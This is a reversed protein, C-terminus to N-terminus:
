THIKPGRKGEKGHAVAKLTQSNPLRIMGYETLLNPYLGSDEPIVSERLSDKCSSDKLLSYFTIKM